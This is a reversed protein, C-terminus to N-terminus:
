RKVTVRYTITAETVALVRVGFAKHPGDLGVSEDWTYLSDGRQVDRVFWTEDRNMGETMLPLRVLVDRKQGPAWVAGIALVAVVILLRRM